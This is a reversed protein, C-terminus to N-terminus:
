AALITHGKMYEQEQEQGEEHEAQEPEPRKAPEMTTRGLRSCSGLHAGRELTEQLGAGWEITWGTAM